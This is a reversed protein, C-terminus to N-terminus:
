DVARRHAVTPTGSFGLTELQALPQTAAGVVELDLTRRACNGVRNVLEGGVHERQRPTVEEARQTSAIQGGFRQIM